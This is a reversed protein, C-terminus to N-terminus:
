AREFRCFVFNQKTGFPTVHDDRLCKRVNFTPAFRSELTEETYQHIPLGSCKEPGKDSFTGVILHNGAAKGVLKLYRDIDTESTLFHFTARDHWLDYKEHPDFELIDSCIWKVRAAREGLRKKARDLADQSIDLVTIDEYGEKLLFDVLKSDGGGIDIIPASKKLQCSRIMDLSVKPVDQTWSVEEPTKKQYINSWHDQKSQSM